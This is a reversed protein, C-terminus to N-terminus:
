SVLGEIPLDPRCGIFLRGGRRHPNGVYTKTKTPMEGLRSSPNQPIASPAVRDYRLARNEPSSSHTIRAPPGPAHDLPHLPQSGQDIPLVDESDGPRVISSRQNEMM